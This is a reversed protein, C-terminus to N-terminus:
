WQTPRAKSVLNSLVGVRNASGQRETLVWRDILLRSPMNMSVIASKANQPNRVPTNPVAIQSTAAKPVIKRLACITLRTM